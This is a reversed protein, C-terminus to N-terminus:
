KEQKAIYQEVAATNGDWGPISNKLSANLRDIGVQEDAAAKAAGLLGAGLAGIGVTAIGLPGMMAGLGSGIGGIGGKLGSMAKGLVTAKDGVKDFGAAAKDAGKLQLELDVQAKSAM